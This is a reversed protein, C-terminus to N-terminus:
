ASAVRPEEDDEDEDDDEWPNRGEAFARADNGYDDVLENLKCSSGVYQPDGYLLQVGLSRARCRIADYSEGPIKSFDVEVAEIFQGDKEARAVIISRMEDAILAEDIEAEEEDYPVARWRKLDAAVRAILIDPIRAARMQKAWHPHEMVCGPRPHSAVVFLHPASRVTPGDDDLKLFPHVALDGYEGDVPHLSYDNVQPNASEALFTDVGDINEIELDAYLEGLRLLNQRQRELSQLERKVDDNLM